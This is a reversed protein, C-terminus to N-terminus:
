DVKIALRCPFATIERKIILSGSLVVVWTIASDNIEAKIIVISVFKM